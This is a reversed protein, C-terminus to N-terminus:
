GEIHSIGIGQGKFFEKINEWKFFSKIDITPYAHIVFRKITLELSKFLYVIKMETLSDLYSDVDEAKSEWYLLEDVLAFQEPSDYTHIKAYNDAMEKELIDYKDTYLKLEEYFHQIVENTATEFATLSSNDYHNFYVEKQKRNFLESFKIMILFQNDFYM